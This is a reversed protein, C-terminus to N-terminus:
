NGTTYKSKSTDIYLLAFADTKNIKTLYIIGSNCPNEVHKLQNEFGTYMNCIYGLRHLMVWNVM